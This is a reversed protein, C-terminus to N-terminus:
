ASAPPDPFTGDLANRILEKTDEPFDAALIWKLYGKNEQALDRVKLGSNKGFAIVMEGDRWRLRGARDLRDPDPPNCYTNLEDPDRPLDAYKAFQGELVKITAEVDALAGHAEAHDEDCYFRLAATLDRRERQHFIRQADILRRGEVEFTVGARACEAVLLPLDYRVINYGALDCGQLTGVVDEVVEEFLPAGVVDVDQIGHIATSSPPIPIGPNVRFVVEERGGGPLLKIVALDIIRDHQPNLGTSEIDFFALPRDLQIMDHKEQRTTVSSPSM